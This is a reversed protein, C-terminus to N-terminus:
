FQKLWALYRERDPAVVVNTTVYGLKEDFSADEEVTHAAYGIKRHNITDVVCKAVMLRAEVEVVGHETVFEQPTMTDIKAQIADMLADIEKETSPAEDPTSKAFTHKSWDLTKSTVGVM